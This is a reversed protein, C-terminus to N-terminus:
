LKTSLKCSFVPNSWTEHLNQKVNTRKKVRQRRHSVSTGLIGAGESIGNVESHSLIDFKKIYKLAIPLKCANSSLIPTM